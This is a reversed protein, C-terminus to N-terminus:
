ASKVAITAKSLTKRPNSGRSPKAKITSPPRLVRKEREGMEM